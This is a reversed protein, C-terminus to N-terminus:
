INYNYSYGKSPRFNGEQIQNGTEVILPEVMKRFNSKYLTKGLILEYVEQLQTLTFEKPVLNFALDTYFLKNRLRSIAM